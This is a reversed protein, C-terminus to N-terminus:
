LGARIPEGGVIRTPLGQVQKPRQDTAGRPTYHFVVVYEGGDGREVWVGDVGPLRMLGAVVDPPLAPPEDGSPAAVAAVAVPDGHLCDLAGLRPEAAM